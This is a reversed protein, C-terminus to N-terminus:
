LPVVYLHSNSGVSFIGIERNLGLVFIGRQFIIIRSRANATILMIVRTIRRERAPVQARRALVTPSFGDM